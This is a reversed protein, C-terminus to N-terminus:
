NPPEVFGFCIQASILINLNEVFEIIIHEILVIITLLSLHALNSM